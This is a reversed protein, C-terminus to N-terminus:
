CGPRSQASSGCKTHALCHKEEVCLEATRVVSILNTIMVAHLSFLLVSVMFTEGVKTCATLKGKEIILMEEATASIRFEATSLVTHSRTLRTIEQLMERPCNSMGESSRLVEQRLIMVSEERLDEPMTEMIENADFFAEQYVDQYHARLKVRMAPPFKYYRMFEELADMKTQIQQKSTATVSVFASIQGTVYAFVVTGLFCALLAVMREKDTKPCIDALAAMM